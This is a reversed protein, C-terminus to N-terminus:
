CGSKFVKETTKKKEGRNKQQQTQSEQEQAEGMLASLHAALFRVVPVVQLSRFDCLMRGSLMRARCHNVARTLLCMQKQGGQGYSNAVPPLFISLSAVILVPFWDM